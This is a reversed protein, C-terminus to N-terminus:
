EWFQGVEGSFKLEKGKLIMTVNRALKEISEGPEPTDVGRVSQARPSWLKTVHPVQYGSTVFIKVM